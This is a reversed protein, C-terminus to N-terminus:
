CAEEDGEDAPWERVNKVNTMQWRQGVRELDGTVIVPARATHAHSAIDYNAQDLVASVPQVSGEVM